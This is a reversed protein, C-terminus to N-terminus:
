LRSVGLGEIRVPRGRSTIEIKVHLHQALDGKKFSFLPIIQAPQESAANLNVKKTKKTWDDPASWFLRYTVKVTGCGKCRTAVLAVHSVEIGGSSPVFSNGPYYAQYDNLSLSGHTAQSYAGGYHASGTKEQWPGSKALSKSRRPMTTCANDAYFSDNGALDHAQVNFCYTNGATASTVASTATTGPPGLPKNDFSGLEAKIAEFHTQVPDFTLPEDDGPVKWSLKLAPGTSFRPISHALSGGIGFPVPTTTPAPPQAARKGHSRAPTAVSELDLVAPPPPTTDITWTFQAPTPDPHGEADLSRVVFTHSGDPLKILHQPSTCAAFQEGDLSCEFSPKSESTTFSFTASDFRSLAGPMDTLTTDSPTSDLTWQTTAASGDQNGFADTAKVSFTHAGDALGSLHDPSSCATPAAGDLSCAFTSNAESSSFEIDPATSSDLGSPGKTITTDPPTSDATWFGLAASSDTNGAQDTARVQIVHLGQALSTFQKPSTCTAFAGGDLSCKFTSSSETSAFSWSASAGSLGDLPSDTFNTDPPTVDVTFIRSDGPDAGGGVAAVHFTHQAETLNHYAKPSTCSVATGDLTCSFSSGTGTFSFSADTSNVFGSPGQTITTAALASPAALALVGITLVVAIVVRHPSPKVAHM